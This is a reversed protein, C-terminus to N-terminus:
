RVIKQERMELILEESYGLAKLVRDTDRGVAGSRGFDKRDYESFVFPPAPMSTTVDDPYAVEDFCGNAGAQADFSADKFHRAIEYAVDNADFIDKWESSTKKLMTKELRATVERVRDNGRIRNLTELQPDTLLEPYDFIKAFTYRDVDFNKEMFALWEGDACRYYDSFPDWPEYRDIPYRRGYQPQADIIASANCWFSSQLLSTSVMTGRGTEQRGIVAILIAALFESATAIDGFAFSPRIPFAGDPLPDVSAGSRMWFATMDFGPRGSEEGRLGFGSFHAYILGPFQDKLSDYDLKMRKLSPMRINTLFIDAYKLLEKFIKMGQQKKLDLSIFTKGSNFQDFLPNNGDEAPLGYGKGTTRLLDGYPPVEVKIVEAGFDSLLRATVPAAVVTALEVVKLKRLPLNKDTDTGTLPLKKDAETEISNLPLHKDEM